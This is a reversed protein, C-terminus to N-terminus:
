QYGAEKLIQEITKPDKLAQKMREIELKAQESQGLVKRAKLLRVWDQTNNPNDKLKESLGEVMNEIMEQQQEPSLNRM